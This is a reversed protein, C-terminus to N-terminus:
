RRAPSGAARRRGRCRRARRAAACAAGAGRLAGVGLRRDHQARARRAGLLALAHRRAARGLRRRVGHPVDLRYVHWPPPGASPASFPATLADGDVQAPWGGDRYIAAIAELTPPDTSASRRARSCSTSARSGRPSRAPPTPPWTARRARTRAPRSTCRTTTGRPASAPPTRAGTRGSPASSARGDPRPTGTVLAERARSWPMPPLEYLEALNTTDRPEMDNLGRVRPSSMPPQPRHDELRSRARRAASWWGAATPATRSGAARPARDADARHHPHGNPRWFSSPTTTSARRRWRPAPPSARARSRRARPCRDGLVEHLERQPHRVLVARRRRARQREHQRRGAARPGHQPRLAVGGVSSPSRSVSLWRASSSRSGPGAPSRGRRRQPPQLRAPQHRDRRPRPPPRRAGVRGGIARDLERGLLLRRDRRDALAALVQQVADGARALGLDVQARAGVREGRPRPTITSTGSIASVGCVTARKWARKPSVTASSCEASDRPRASRRTAAAASRRPARDRDARARGHERRHAVEPQHHDVLLVVARVLVLAVRAVVGPVDRGLARAAGAGRQQDPEAVGRGSVQRASGCRCAARVADVGARQRRHLHEVHAAGLMRQVRERAARQLRARM